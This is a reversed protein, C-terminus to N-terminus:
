KRIKSIEDWIRDTAGPQAMKKMNESMQALLTPNNLIRDIEEMLKKPTLDKEEILVAAGAEAYALANKYQHNDTM